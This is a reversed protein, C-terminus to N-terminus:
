VKMDGTRASSNDNDENRDRKLNVTNSSRANLDDLRHEETVTTVTIPITGGHGM